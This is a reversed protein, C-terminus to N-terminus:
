RGYSFASPALALWGNSFYAMLNVPGNTVSPPSSVQIQSASSATASIPNMAGFRVQPGSSFNAGSLSLKTGGTFPGESPQASPASSFLPATQPLSTPQSADLFAVGRNNLGVLNSNAGLEEISTPVGQVPMDPVQGLPQMTSTALVTVVNANGYPEDVYLSQGNLSFVLGAPGSSTYSGLLNLSASLLLVQTTGGTSVAVAFLSGDSSAAAASITGALPASPGAALNGNADFVVLKAAPITPQPLSTPM